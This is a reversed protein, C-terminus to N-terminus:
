LKELFGFLVATGPTGRIVSKEPNLVIPIPNDVQVVLVSRMQTERLVRRRTAWDPDTQLRFGCEIGEEVRRAAGDSRLPLTSEFAIKRTVM